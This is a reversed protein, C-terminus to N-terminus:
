AQSATASASRRAPRLWSTRSAKCRRRTPSGGCRTRAGSTTASRRSSSTSRRPWSRRRPRTPRAATRRRPGPRHGPGQHPRLEARASRRPAREVLAVLHVPRRPRGRRPQAVPLGPLPGSAGHPHVEGARDSQDARRRLRSGQLVGAPGPRHDPEDRGADDVPQHQAPRSQRGQVCAVLEQAKAMDQKLPFGTRPRTASSATTLVARERHAARRRRDQRHDGPQGDRIAM